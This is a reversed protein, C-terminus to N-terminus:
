VGEKLSIGEHSSGGRYYTGDGPGCATNECNAPFPGALRLYEGLPSPGAETQTPPFVLERGGISSSDSSTWGLASAIDRCGLYLHSRSGPLHDM